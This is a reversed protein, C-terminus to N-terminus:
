LKELEDRKKKLEAAKEFNQEEIAQKLEQKIKVLDDKRQKEKLEHDKYNEKLDEIKDRLQAAKEYDEKQVAVNLEKEFHKIRDSISLSEPKVDNSSYVQKQGDPGVTVIKYSFNMGYADKMENVFEEFFSDFDARSDNFKKNFDSNFLNSFYFM